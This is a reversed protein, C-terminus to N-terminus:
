RWGGERRFVGDFGGFFIMAYSRDADSGVTMVERRRIRVCMMSSNSPLALGRRVLLDYFVYGVCTLFLAVPRKAIAKALFRTKASDRYTTPGHADTVATPASMEPPGAMLSQPLRSASRTHIIQMSRPPTWLWMSRRARLVTRLGNTM